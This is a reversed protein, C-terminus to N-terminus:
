RDPVLGRCRVSDAAARSPVARGSGTDEYRGPMISAFGSVTDDSIDVSIDDSIDDSVDDSIDAAIKGGTEGGMEGSM